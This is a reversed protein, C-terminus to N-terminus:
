RKGMREVNGFYRIGTSKIARIINLSWYFGNFEKDHMKRRGGIEEEMKTGFTKRLVTNESVRVGKEEEIYCTFRM